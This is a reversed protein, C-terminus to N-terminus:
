TQALQELYAAATVRAIRTVKSAGIKMEAFPDFPDALLDRRVEMCLVRGPYLASYRYGMTAAHLRYTANETAQFEDDRFL